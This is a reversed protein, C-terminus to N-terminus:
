YEYLLSKCVTIEYWTHNIANYFKGSSCIFNIFLKIKYIIDKNITEEKQKNTQKAGHLSGSLGHGGPWQATGATM